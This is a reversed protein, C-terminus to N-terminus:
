SGTLIEVVASPREIGFAGNAEIRVLTSNSAGDNEEFSALTVPSLYLRGVAQTDMVFANILNKVVAIKLGFLPAIGTQRASTAFVYHEATDGDRFLDLDEAMNPSLAVIDPSYGEGQLTTIAERVERFTDSGAVQQTPPAANLADIVLDDIADEFALRLDQQVMTAFAPRALLINPTGSQKTAVQKLALTEVEAESDTEPKETTATITRQMDAPSALTRSLQRFTEVSTTASDVSEMPLNPYLRRQDAGLPAGETETRGFADIDGAEISGAKAAVYFERFPLSARPQETPSWGAAKFRALLGDGTPSTNGEISAVKAAIKDLADAEDRYGKAIEIFKNVATMEEATLRRGTAEALKCLSRAQDAASKQARRLAQIRPSM